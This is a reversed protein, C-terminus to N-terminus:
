NSKRACIENAKLLKSLFICFYTCLFFSIIIKYYHIYCYLSFSHNFEYKSSFTQLKTLFIFKPFCHIKKCTLFYM